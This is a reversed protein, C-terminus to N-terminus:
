WLESLGIEASYSMGDKSRFDFSQRERSALSAFLRAAWVRIQDNYQM